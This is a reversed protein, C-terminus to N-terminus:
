GQQGARESTSSPSALVFGKLDREFWKAALGFPSLIIFLLTLWVGGMFEGIARGIRLWAQTLGRFRVNWIAKKVKAQEGAKAMRDLELKSYNTHFREDGRVSEFTQATVTDDKLLDVYVGFQRGAQREQLWAFALFEMVGLKQYLSKDGRIGHERVYNVDELIRRTPRRASSLATAREAFWRAHKHEDLAHIFFKRRLNPRITEDEAAALM